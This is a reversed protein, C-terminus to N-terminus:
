ILQSRMAEGAVQQSLLCSIFNTRRSRNRSGHNRDAVMILNSDVYEANYRNCSACACVSMCVYMYSVAAM